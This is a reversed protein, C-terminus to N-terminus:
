AIFLVGVYVQTANRPVEGVNPSSAPSTSAYNTSACSNPCGTLLSQMRGTKTVGPVGKASNPGGGNRSGVPNASKRRFIATPLLVYISNNLPKESLFAFIELDGDM